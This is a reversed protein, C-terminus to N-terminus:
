AGWNIEDRFDAQFSPDARKLADDIYEHVARDGADSRRTGPIICEALSAVTEVDEPDLFAPQWVENASRLEYRHHVFGPYMLPLASASGLFRLAERRSLGAGHRRKESPM